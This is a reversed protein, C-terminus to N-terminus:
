HWGAAKPQLLENLFDAVQLGLREQLQLRRAFVELVRAQPKPLSVLDIAM